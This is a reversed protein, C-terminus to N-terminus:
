YLIPFVSVGRSIERQEVSQLTKDWDHDILSARLQAASFWKEGEGRHRWCLRVHIKLRNGHPDIATVFQSEVIGTKPRAEDEVIFGRSKLFPAVANRSKQEAILSAQMRFERKTKAM